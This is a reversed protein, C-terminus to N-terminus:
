RRPRCGARLTNMARAARRATAADAFRFTLSAAVPVRTPPAADITVTRQGPTHAVGTRSWNIDYPLPPLTPHTILVSSRCDGTPWERAVAATPPGLQASTAVVTKVDRRFLAELPDAAVPALLAFVASLLVSM